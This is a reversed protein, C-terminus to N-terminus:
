RLRYVRKATGERVLKVIPYNPEHTISALQNLSSKIHESLDFAIEM